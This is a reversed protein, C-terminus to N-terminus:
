HFPNIPRQVLEIIRQDYSGFPYCFFHIEEQIVEEIIKKSGEIEIELEDERLEALDRHSTTHSGIEMDFQSLLKLDEKSLYRDSEFFGPNIYFSGVMNREVLEPLVIDLMSSYGDDFSLIVPKEPLAEDQDWHNYLDKMTITTYGNEQLWDLQEMFNEPSVYYRQNFGTEGFRLPENIEHYMLIPLETVKHEFGEYCFPGDKKETLFGFPQTYTRGSEANVSARVYRSISENHRYPLRSGEHIIEGGSIWKVNGHEPVVEIVQECVQLKIIEPVASGSGHSFFFRGQKLAKSTDEKTHESLLVTNWNWGPM